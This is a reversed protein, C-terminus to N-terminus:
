YGFQKAIFSIDKIDVKFDGNVDAVANWNPQGPVTGFAKAALSIDRIDVKLDPAPAENKISAPTSGLGLVDYLTTGGIDQKITVWIPLTVNTWTGLWPNAQGDSLNTPGTIQFAVKVFTLSKKALTLNLTEVDAAGTPDEPYPYTSNWPLIPAITRNLPFGSQLIGNIYVYKNGTLNGEQSLNRTTITINSVVSMDTPSVNVKSLGYDPNIDIYVPDYLYYGPSRIGNVVSGPTNAVLAVTSGVTDGLGSVWRFPGSGIINADPTIAEVYNHNEDNISSDVIPKWVHMPLITNSLVWGVAWISNINLLIQINYDDIIEVSRMYQVTPYWAPPAFGKALLDKSIEVLTYYVDAVTFPQGDQWYVDPRLTITVATKKAGGASPDNWTGITWSKFLQPLWSGLTMPDRMAGSDYIRGLVELDWFWEAYLINQQYVTSSFGYQVSSNPYIDGQKRMNLTTWWSNVGTLGSNVIDTWNGGGSVPVNKFAKTNAPCWLPVAAAIQAFRVQAAMTAALATAFDTALKISTLNANLIPDNIGDYNPCSGPHYYNSGNYIDCLYDPDPGIGTWGSICLNFYGQFYVPSIAQSRPIHSYYWTKIHVANLNENISDGVEERFSYPINYFILNLEAGTGGLSIPDIRWGNTDITYGNADLLANAATLNGTYGGYTLAELPQDPAIDPNVYGAMYSPVPTYIPVASGGSFAVIESRNVCYAIAQRLPLESTPNHVGPIANDPTMTANNNIDLIFYTVDGSGAETFPGNPTSWATTTSSDLAWDELDLQSGNMANWEAATDSYVTIMIGNIHPGYIEYKNDETSPNPPVVWGYVPIVTLFLLTLLLVLFLSKDGM